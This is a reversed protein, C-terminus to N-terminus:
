STVLYITSHGSNRSNKVGLVYFILTSFEGLILLGEKEASVFYWNVKWIITSTNQCTTKSLKKFIFECRKDENRTVTVYIIKRNSKRRKLAKEKWSCGPRRKDIILPVAEMKLMQKKRMDLQSSRIWILKTMNRWLLLHLLHDVANKAHNVFLM